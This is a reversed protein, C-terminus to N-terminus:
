LAQRFSDASEIVLVITHSLCAPPIQFSRGLYGGEKDVEVLQAMILRDIQIARRHDQIIWSIGVM